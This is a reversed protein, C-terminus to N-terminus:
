NGKSGEIEREFVYVSASYGPKVIECCVLCELRYCEIERMLKERQSCKSLPTASPSEPLPAAGAGKSQGNTRREDPDPQITRNGWQRQGNRRSNTEGNRPPADGAAYDDDHPRFRGSGATQQNAKWKGQRAVPRDDRTHWGNRPKLSENRRPRGGGSSRSGGAGGGAGTGGGGGYHNSLGARHINERDDGDYDDENDAVAAPRVSGAPMTTAMSVMTQPPAGGGGGGGGSNGDNAETQYKRPVFEAATPTLNSTFGYYQFTAPQQQHHENNNTTHHTRLYQLQQQIQVRANFQSIFDDFTNSSGSSAANGDSTAMTATASTPGVGGKNAM